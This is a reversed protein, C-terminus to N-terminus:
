IIDKFCNQFSSGLLWDGPNSLFPSLYEIYFKPKQPILKWYDSIVYSNWNLNWLKINGPLHWRWNDYLYSVHCGDTTSTMCYIRKAAKLTPQWVLLEYSLWWHRNEYLFIQMAAMLTPQWLLLGCPLRWHRNDYWYNMYFGDTDTSMCFIRMAATMIPQWVLLGCPLLWHQNGYWYDAHCSDTNTAMGIIWMAAMLTPQWVFLGCSLWRDQKDYLLEAHCGNTNTAMGIIWM